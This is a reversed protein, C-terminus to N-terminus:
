FHSHQNAPQEAFTPGLPTYHTAGYTSHFCIIELVLFYALEQKRNFKGQCINKQLVGLKDCLVYGCGAGMRSLIEGFANVPVDTQAVM